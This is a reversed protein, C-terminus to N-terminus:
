GLALRGSEEFYQHHENENHHADEFYNRNQKARDRKAKPQEAINERTFVHQLGHRIQNRAPNARDNNRDRKIEHLKQYTDHLGQNEHQQSRHECQQNTFVVFPMFRMMLFKLPQVTNLQPLRQSFCLFTFMYIDNIGINASPIVPFIWTPNAASPAAMPTPRIPALADSATPRLGPAAVFIRTCDMRAMAKASPITNKAM